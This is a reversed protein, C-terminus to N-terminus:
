LAGLVRAPFHGTPVLVRRVALMSLVPEKVQVTGLFRTLPLSYVMSIMLSSSVLSYLKRGYKVTAPAVPAADVEVAAEVVVSAEVVLVVSADVVLVLVLVSAVVVVVVSALVVSALVVVVEVAALVVAVVKVLAEESDVVVADVLLALEDEAEAEAVATGPLPAPTLRTELAM